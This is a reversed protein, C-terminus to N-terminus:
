TNYKVLKNKEEIVALGIIREKLRQMVAKRKTTSHEEKLMDYLEKRSFKNIDRILNVYSQMALSKDKATAVITDEM